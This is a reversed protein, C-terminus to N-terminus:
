YIGKTGSFGGHYNEHGNLKFFISTLSWKIKQFFSGRGYKNQQVINRINNTYTGIGEEYVFIEISRFKRLEKIMSFSYDGDIYLKDYSNNRISYFAESYNNCFLVEDWYNSKNKIDLFLKEAGNFANVIILVKLSFDEINCVNFYQLPKSIIFASKGMTKEIKEM